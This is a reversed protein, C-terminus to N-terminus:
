RRATTNAGAASGAVGATGAAPPPLAAGARLLGQGEACVHCNLVFGQGHEAVAKAWAPATSQGGAGFTPLRETSFPSAWNWLLETQAKGTAKWPLWPLAAPM